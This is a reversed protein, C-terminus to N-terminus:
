IVGRLVDHSMARRNERESDDGTRVREIAACAGRVRRKKFGDVVSFDLSVDDLTQCVEVHEGRRTVFEGVIHGNLGKEISLFGVITDLDYM